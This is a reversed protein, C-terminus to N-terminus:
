RQADLGPALLANLADAAQDACGSQYVQAVADLSTITEVAPCIAGRTRLGRADPDKPARALIFKLVAMRDADPASAARRPLSLGDAAARLTVLDGSAHMLTVTAGAALPVRAGADFAQGRQLAPDSSRVVVYDAAFGATAIVAFAAALCFRPLVFVMAWTERANTVSAIM